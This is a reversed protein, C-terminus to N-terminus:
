SVDPVSIWSWYPILRAHSVALLLPTGDSPTRSDLPGIGALAGLAGHRFRCILCGMPRRPQALPAGPSEIRRGARWNVAALRGVRAGRAHVRSSPPAILRGGRYSLGPPHLGGDAPPKLSPAEVPCSLHRAQPGSNRLCRLCAICHSSGQLLRGDEADAGSTPVQCRWQCRLQFPIAARRPHWLRGQLFDGCKQGSRRQALGSPRGHKQHNRQSATPSGVPTPEKTNKM